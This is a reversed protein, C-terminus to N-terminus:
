IRTVKQHKLKTPLNNKFRVQHGDIQFKRCQTFMNAYWGCVVVVVVDSPRERMMEFLFLLLVTQDCTM